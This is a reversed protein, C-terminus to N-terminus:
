LCYYLCLLTIYYLISFRLTLRLIYFRLMLGIATYCVTYLFSYLFDYRTFRLTLRLRPFRLSYVTSLRGYSSLLILYYFYLPFITIPSVHFHTIFLLTYYSTTPIVYYQIFIYTNHTSFISHFLLSYNPSNVPM